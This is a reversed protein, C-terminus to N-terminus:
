EDAPVEQGHYDSWDALREATQGALMEAYAWDFMETLQDELVAQVEEPTEAGEVWVVEDLRESIAEMLAPKAQYELPAGRGIYTHTGVPGALHMVDIGQDPDGLMESVRTQAETAVDMANTDDTESM